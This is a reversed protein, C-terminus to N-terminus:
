LVALPVFGLYDCAILKFQIGYREGIFAKKAASGGHIHGYFCKKIGYETLVSLIEECEM